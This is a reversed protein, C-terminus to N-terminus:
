LRYKWTFTTDRPTAAQNSQPPSSTPAHFRLNRRLTAILTRFGIPRDLTVCPSCSNRTVSSRPMTSYYFCILSVRKDLKKRPAVRFSRSTLGALSKRPIEVKLSHTSDHKRSASNWSRRLATLHRAFFYSRRRCGRPRRILLSRITDTITVEELFSTIAPRWCFLCIRQSLFCIRILSSRSALSPFDLAGKLATDAGQPEAGVDSM